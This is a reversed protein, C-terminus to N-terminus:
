HQIVINMSTLLRNIAHNIVIYSCRTDFKLFRFLIILCYLVRSAMMHDIYVANCYDLGAIHDINAFSSSTITTNLKLDM